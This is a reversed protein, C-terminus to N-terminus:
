PASASFDSFPAGPGGRLGALGPASIASDMVDGVPQGAFWLRLRNGQVTFQLLGSLSPGSPRPLAVSSLVKWVGGVNREIYAIFQGNVGVVQGLYMSGDGPGSYRATLGAYQAGSTALVINAQVAVDAVAPALSVAALSVGPGNARLGNSQVSFNGVQEAWSRGLQSGPLGDFADAFPLAVADAIVPGGAFDDLVVGPSGWVGTAGSALAPTADFAYVLLRGNLFLKVSHGVADLRLTGIGGSLRVPTGLPTVTGGVNRLLYATSSGNQAVVEGLYYGSAGYRVVLGAYSTGPAPLAVVKALVEADTLASATQYTALAPGTGSVVLQGSRVGASGRVQAWGSGLTPSDPGDFSDGFAALFTTAPVVSAAPQVNGANDTAVSYFTYAHGAQGTFTASGATAGQQWPNYPGGNDSVYVKISAIGSGTPDDSGAWSVTFSDSTVAAPASVASTPPDLDAVTAGASFESTDGTALNTATATVVAGLPASLLATFSATGAASTTVNLSGLFTQGQAATGGAPSAFFELRFTTRAISTLTGSIHGTSAVSLVPTNQGRNPFARPNAGNPTPGDGGLDIGPGSNGFIIRNGLAFISNGLVSDGITVGLVSGVDGMTINDKVLVGVGNFAIVNGSGPATGGIVNRSAGKELLVGPDVYGLKLTGSADIGIFNGLVVNGSTGPGSLVVPETPPDVLRRESGAIVNAAGAGTGGVTNGTAGGQILVGAVTADVLSVTGSKDTGILNGLVVNGSTGPGEIDVDAGNASLVNAPGVKNGTAGGYILVGDQGNGLAATGSKDTGILDGLVVNGSMGTGVIVVGGFANGSIVNAAGSATGGVSNRSAGSEISVGSGLNGLPATGSEDTGIMNGLVANGSTGRGYLRVGLYNGSIVNAAGSATGGVMNGSAGGFLVVGGLGNGLKATGREDTGILNGLVANGSTGTQSIEVGGNHNGSIVNAAGSATGGVTNGSAGGYIAVGGLGNGLPTTGSKDTGILNSLVVNGSTGAQSIEVGGNHNGSIVNGAGSATGGVTNGSAGGFLAVGGAGNGLKAAGSEDTGIYNGLVVNGSTGAGSIVVGAYGNGSILNGAGATTGGVVNNKSGFVLMLGPVNTTLGNGLAATGAANTGIRNGAILAGSTGAVYIGVRVNAAIVNGAGAAAGGVTNGSGAGLLSVGDGANGLAATGMVNTGIYNGEVLNATSGSGNIEVGRWGNGAIVNRTAATTGGVTNNAAGGQILVGDSRNGLAATGGANTGIYNGAILNNSTSGLTIGTDFQQIALGRVTSGDSGASLYLGSPSAVRLASGNLVILPPGGYGAGGQSWGDLLVQSTITPLAARANGSGVTITQVTGPAGIAFSVTNSASGAAANGSPAQTSIAALVDRLTVEGPTADHLIDKTTNVTYSTPLWRGELPEV